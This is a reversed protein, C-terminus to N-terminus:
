GVMRKRCRIEGEGWDWLAMGGVDCAILNGLGGSRNAEQKRLRRRARRKEETEETNFREESKAKEKKSGM